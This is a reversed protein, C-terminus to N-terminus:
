AARKQAQALAQAQGKPVRRGFLVIQGNLAVTSLDRPAILHIRTEFDELIKDIVAHASSPSNKM